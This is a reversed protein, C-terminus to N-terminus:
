FHQKTNNYSMLSVNRVNKRTTIQQDYFPTEKFIFYKFANNYLRYYKLAVKCM